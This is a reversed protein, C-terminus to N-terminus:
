TRPVGRSHRWGVVLYSQTWRWELLRRCLLKRVDRNKGQPATQFRSCRRHLNRGFRVDPKPKPEFHSCYSMLTVTLVESRLEKTAITMGRVLVSVEQVLAWYRKKIRERAEEEDRLVKSEPNLNPKLELTIGRRKWYREFDLDLHLHLHLDPNHRTEELVQRMAHGDVAAKLRLQAEIVPVIEERAKL